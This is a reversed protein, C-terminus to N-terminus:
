QIVLKQQETKGDASVLILYVGAELDSLDLTHTGENVYENFWIRGQIDVIQVTANNSLSIQTQGIAPNPFMSFSENLEEELGWYVLGDQPLSPPTIPSFASYSCGFWDGDTLVEIIGANMEWGGANRASWTSWYYPDLGLGSEGTIDCEISQVLSGTLEFTLGFIGSAELQLMVEQATITEDEFQLGYAYSQGPMWENYDIVLVVQNEGSGVLFPIEDLVYDASDIASIPYFPRRSPWEGYSCGFWDGDNIETSIGTNMVWDSLNTGSWTGWYYPDGALGAQDNFLIDNLFAEANISLNVDAEDIDNLMESAEVPGDFAYGWAYTVAEAYGPTIFDIVFVASDEGSGVWFSIDSASYNSSAYAPLPEGPTIAPEFDTYSCGFWDGNVLTTGLGLNSEWETGETKSWTGWFNPDGGIGDHANYTIDNLFGGGTVISLMEEDAAIAALMDGGTVTESDDFLYGWAYSSDPTEDLFDIVLIATDPGEGVYYVVDSQTFQAKGM